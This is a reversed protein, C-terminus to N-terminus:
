PNNIYNIEMRFDDYASGCYLSVLYPFSNGGYLLFGGNNQAQAWGKVVDTVDVVNENYTHQNPPQKIVSYSQIVQQGGLYFKLQNVASLSKPCVFENSTISGMSYSSGTMTYFLKASLITKGMVEQLNEFLIHGSAEYFKTPKGWGMESYSHGVTIPGQTFEGTKFGACNGNFFFDNTFCTVSLRTPKFTATKVSTKDTQEADLCVMNSDASEILGKYARVTFCIDDEPWQIFATTQDPLPVTKLLSPEGLVYRVLRFGDIDNKSYDGDWVLVKTGGSVMMQCLESVIEPKYQGSFHQSCLNPDETIRLNKPEQITLVKQTGYTPIGFIGVVSYNKSSIVAHKGMEEESFSKEAIGISEQKDWDWCDFRILTAGKGQVMLPQVYPTLDFGKRAALNNNPLVQKKWTEVEQSGMPSIYNDDVWPIRPIDKQNITAFCYLRQVNEVTFIKVDRYLPELSCNDTVSANVPAGETSGADNAAAALLSYNGKERFVKTVVKEGIPLPGFVGVMESPGQVNGDTQWIHLYLSTAASTSTITAIIDCGQVKVSLEPPLPPTSICANDTVSANVPVGETTGAANAAAALLSYNGTVRFITKVVKEGTPLPGFEGVMEAPGQVNGDTQWIHLYFGDADDSTSTITATINCGEVKVSLEPPLPPQGGGKGGPPEPAPPIIDPPNAPFGPSPSMSWGPPLDAGSKFPIMVPQDVALPAAPDVEPNADAAELPLVNYAAALSNLTDGAKPVLPVNVSPPPGVMVQVSNSLVMQGTSDFGRAMLAHSGVSTPTWNWFGNLQKLEPMQSNTRNVLEGDVWLELSQVPNLGVAAAAVPIPEGLPPHSGDFPKTLTVFMTDPPVQGAAAADGGAPARLYVIVGLLGLGALVAAGLLISIIIGTKRQM